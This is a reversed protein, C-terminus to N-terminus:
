NTVNYAMSSNGEFSSWVKHYDWAGRVGIGCNGNIPDIKASRSLFCSGDVMSANIVTRLVGTVFADEVSFPPVYEATQLLKPILSTSIVYIPGSLYRPYYSFPFHTIPVGYPGEDRYVKGSVVYGMMKDTVDENLMNWIRPINVFIDEDVKLMFQAQKCHEKMWKLAMLTKLTLNRYSEMFDVLILDNHQHFESTINNITYKMEKSPLALMFYVKVGKYKKDSGIWTGDRVVSGWTSRTADRTLIRDAVSYCIAVIRTGSDCPTDPSLVFKYNLNTMKLPWKQYYTDPTLHLFPQLQVGTYVTQNRVPDNWIWELKENIAITEGFRWKVTYTSIWVVTVMILVLLVFAIKISASM